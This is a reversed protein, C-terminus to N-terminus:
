LTSLQDALNYAFEAGCSEDDEGIFLSIPMSDIVSLDYETVEYNDPFAWNENYPQFRQTLMGQLWHDNNKTSERGLSAFDVESYEECYWGYLESDPDACVQEQTATWEAEDTQPVSQVGLGRSLGVGAMAEESLDAETPTGGITCPALLIVRQFFTDMADKEEILGVLM